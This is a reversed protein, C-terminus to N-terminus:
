KLLEELKSLSINKFFVANVIIRMGIDFKFYFNSTPESASGIDFLLVCRCWVTSMETKLVKLYKRYQESRTMKVIM